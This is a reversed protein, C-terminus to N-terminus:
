VVLLYSTITVDNRFHSLAFLSTALISLRNYKIPLGNDIAFQRPKGRLYYNGEILRKPLHKPKGTKQNINYKNWRARVEQELKVRTEPNEALALFYAYCRQAFKARLCHLPLKNTM